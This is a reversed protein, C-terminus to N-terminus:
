WYPTGIFTDHKRSGKINDKASVGFDATFPVLLNNEHCSTLCRGLRISGDSCLLINGAKLDRHICHFSHLFNLGELLQRAICRIQQESLGHDLEASFFSSPPLIPFLSPLSPSPSPHLPPLPPPLPPLSIGYFCAM